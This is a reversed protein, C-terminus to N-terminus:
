GKKWGIWLGLMAGVIVALFIGLQDSVSIAIFYGLVAGVIGAAITIASNHQKSSDSEGSEQEIPESAKVKPEGLDIETPAKKTLDLVTAGGSNEKVSEIGKLCNHKQSYAQSALVIEGNAAKLHFRFEGAKDKFVEFKSESM